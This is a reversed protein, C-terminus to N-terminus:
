KLKKIINSLMRNLIPDSHICINRNYEKDFIHFTTGFLLKILSFKMRYKNKSIDFIEYRLIQVIDNSIIRAKYSKTHKKCIYIETNESLGYAHHSLSFTLEKKFFKYDHMYISINDFYLENPFSLGKMSYLFYKYRNFINLDMIVKPEIHHFLEISKNKFLHNDFIFRDVLKTQNYELIYSIYHKAILVQIYELVEGYKNISQQILPMYNDTIQPLYRYHYQWAIQSLSNKDKRDYYYKANQLIGYDQKDLLISNILKADEWYNINEDFAFCDKFFLERKFVVGGIHYQLEKSQKTINIIQTKTNIDTTHNIQKNDPLTVIPISAISIQPNKFFFNHSVSFFNDSVSDSDDVFTIYKSKSSTQKVGANRAASVGLNRQQIIKVQKLKEYPELVQKTNDSSGDNIVIIEDDLFPLQRLLRDLTKAIKKESNRTPIIVSFM